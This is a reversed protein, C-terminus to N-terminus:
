EAVISTQEPDFEFPWFKLVKIGRSGDLPYWGEEGRPIMGSALMYHALKRLFCRAYDGGDKALATKWFAWFEVMEKISTRATESDDIEVRAIIQDDHKIEYIM